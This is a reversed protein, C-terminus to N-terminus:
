GGVNVGNGGEGVETRGGERGVGKVRSGGM